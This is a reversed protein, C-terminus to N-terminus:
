AALDSYSAFIASKLENFLPDLQSWECPNETRLAVEIQQCYEGLRNAGVSRASGKLTHAAVQAASFDGKELGDRLQTILDPATDLFIQLIEGEFESDGGSIDALHAFDLVEGTLNAASVTQGALANALSDAKIPKTIYDDMGAEICKERDGGMANATLAIIRTRRGLKRETARIGRTAQLGDMEPMQVDMLIVDYPNEGTAKALTQVGDAAVDAEIGLNNLHRMAVKRNVENDEALLVRLGKLKRTEGAQGSEDDSSRSAFPLPIEVWFESGQGEASLVGVEGGMLNVLQSVITLGLGAGGYRRSHSGDAQAFSEFITDLRNPPIGIGTDRVTIRLKESPKAISAQIEVCGSNTFKVGNAALNLIVQRLRLSDGLFTQNAEQSIAVRLDLGKRLAEHRLIAAVDELASQLEFPQSELTMKGAEIKSFDLIDNIIGLLGEASKRITFAFERQENDLETGILLDTMGIVGNMPTRIEHSMNALFESKLRASEEAMERAKVLEDEAVKRDTIDSLSGAMRYPVGNADRSAAGRALIWRYGGDKHKIRYEGQYNPAKGSLYNQFAETARAFDEPHILARYDASTAPLEDAGYGLFDMVRESLYLCDTTLDLDWIADSSGAVALEFQEKAQRLEIEARRKETVDIGMSIVYQITGDPRVLATNSWAILRLDGNRTRWNTEYFSPFMGATLRSFLWKQRPIEDEELFLDWFECNKVEEYRFGTAEECASNFRVIKGSSETVMILSGANDVIASTLDREHKVEDEALKRELLDILAGEISKVQGLEDYTIRISSEVWVPHGDKHRYRIEHRGHTKGFKELSEFQTRAFEVDEHWIYDLYSDGLTEKITYGTLETWAPNLFLWKGNQDRRFLVEHAQQVIQRYQNESEFLEDASVKRYTTDRGSVVLCGKTEAYRAIWSAWRLEDDVNLRADFEVASRSRSAEAITRKVSVRDDPHIWFIFDSTSMATATQRLVGALAANVRLIRGDPSVECGYDATLDFFEDRQSHARKRMWKSPQVGGVMTLIFTASASFGVLGVICKLLPIQNALLWPMAVGVEFALAAIFMLIWEKQPKNSNLSVSFGVLIRPLNM